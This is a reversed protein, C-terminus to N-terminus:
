FYKDQQKHSCCHSFHILWNFWLLQNIALKPEHDSVECFSTKCLWYLNKWADMHKRCVLIYCQIFCILIGVWLRKCPTTEIYFVGFLQNIM